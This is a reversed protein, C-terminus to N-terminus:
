EETQESTLSAQPSILLVPSFSPRGFWDFVSGTADFLRAIWDRIGARRMILHVDGNITRSQVARRLSGSYVDVTVGVGKAKLADSAPVTQAKARKISEEWSYCRLLEALEWAAETDPETRPWEIGNLPYRMLFVVSMGPRAVKELYPIMVEPRENQGLPVLIKKNM